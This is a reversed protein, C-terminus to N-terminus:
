KIYFSVECPEEDIPTSKVLFSGIHPELPYDGNQKPIEEVNIDEIRGVHPERRAKKKPKVTEDIVFRGIDTKETTQRRVKTVEKTPREYKV